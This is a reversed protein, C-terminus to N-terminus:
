PVPAGAVNIVDVVSSLLEVGSFFIGIGLVLHRKEL